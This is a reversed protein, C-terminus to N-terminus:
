FTSHLPLSPRSRYPPPRHVSSNHSATLSILVPCNFQSPSLDATLSPPSPLYPPNPPPISNSQNASQMKYCCVLVSYRKASSWCM